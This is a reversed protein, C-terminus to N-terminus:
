KLVELHSARAAAVSGLLAALRPAAELCAAVAAERGAKEAATLLALARGRDAPVAVPAPSAAPVTVGIADALAKAHARHADRVPGLSRSLAPVAGIALDYQDGLAVTSRLFAELRHPESAAEPSGAFADCGALASVGVAGTLGIGALGAVGRLVARRSTVPRSAASDPNRM